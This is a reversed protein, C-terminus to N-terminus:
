PMSATCILASTQTGAGCSVNQAIVRRAAANLVLGGRAIDSARITSGFAVNHSNSYIAVNQAGPIRSEGSVDLSLVRPIVIKFDLHATARLPSASGGVLQSDAAALFPLLLAAGGALAARARRWDFKLATDLDRILPRLRASKLAQPPRYPTRVAHRHCLM